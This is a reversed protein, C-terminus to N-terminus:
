RAHVPRPAGVLDAAHKHVRIRGTQDGRYPADETPTEALACQETRAYAIRPTEHHIGAWDGRYWHAIIEHIRKFRDTAFSSGNHKEWVAHDWEAEIDQSLRWGGFEDRRDLFMRLSGFCWLSSTREAVLEPWGDPWRDWALSTEGYPPDTVCCDFQGLAPLIERCDGLYLTVQRDEYYPKVPTGEPHETM